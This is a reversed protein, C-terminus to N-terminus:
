AQRPTEKELKEVARQRAEITKTDAQQWRKCSHGFAHFTARYVSGTCNILGLRAMEVLIENRKADRRDRMAAHSCSLCTTM